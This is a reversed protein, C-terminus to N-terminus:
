KSGPLEYITERHTTLMAKKLKSKEAVYEVERRQQSFIRVEIGGWTTAMDSVTAVTERTIEATSETALWKLISSDRVGVLQNSHTAKLAFSSCLQLVLL